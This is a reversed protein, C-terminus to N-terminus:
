IAQCQKCIYWVADTDDIELPECANCIESKSEIRVEGKSNKNSEEAPDLEISTAVRKFEPTQQM